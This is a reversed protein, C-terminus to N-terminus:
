VHACNLGFKGTFLLSALLFVEPFRSLFINSVILEVDKDELSVNRNNTTSDINDQWGMVSPSFHLFAPDADMYTFFIPCSYKAVPTDTILSSM